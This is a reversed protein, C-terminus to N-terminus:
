LRNLWKLIIEIKEITCIYPINAFFSLGIWFFDAKQPLM